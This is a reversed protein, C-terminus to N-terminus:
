QHIPCNSGIVNLKAISSYPCCGYRTGACGGVMPSPVPTPVPTPVPVPVPTPVPNPVPQPSPNTNVVVIHGVLAILVLVLLTIIIINAIDM